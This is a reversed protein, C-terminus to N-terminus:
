LKSDALFHWKEYLIPMAIPIIWKSSQHSLGMSNISSILPILHFSYHLHFYNPLNCFNHMQPLELHPPQDFVTFKLIFLGNRWCKQKLVTHHKLGILVALHIPSWLSGRGIGFFVPESVERIRCWRYVLRFVWVAASLAGLVGVACYLGKAPWSHTSHLFDKPIRVAFWCHTIPPFSKYKRRFQYKGAWHARECSSLVWFILYVTDSGCVVNGITFAWGASCVIAM